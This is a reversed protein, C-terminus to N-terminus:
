PRTRGKESRWSRSPSGRPASPRCAPPAHRRPRTGAAGITTSAAASAASSGCRAAKATWPSSPTTARRTAPGASTTSSRAPEGGARSLTWRGIIAWARRAARRGGTTRCDGRAPAPSAKGFIRITSSSGPIRKPTRSKRSLSPRSTSSASVMAEASRTTRSQCGSATTRSWMSGSPVARSRRGRRRSISAVTGTTTSVPCAVISRATRATLSPASWNRALGTSSGARRTMSCRSSSLWRSFRRWIAPRARWARSVTSGKVPVEAAMRARASCARRIAVVLLGIRISPSVPLPLPTRARQSCRLPGRASSGNTSM